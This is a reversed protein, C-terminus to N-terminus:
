GRAVNISVLHTSELQHTGATESTYNRQSCVPFVSVIAPKAAVNFKSAHSPRVFSSNHSRHILHATTRGSFSKFARSRDCYSPSRCDEVKAVLHGRPCSDLVWAYRSLLVLTYHTVRSLDRASRPFVLCVHGASRRPQTQVKHGPNKVTSGPSTNANQCRTCIATYIRTAWM